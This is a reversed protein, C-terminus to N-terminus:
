SDKFNYGVYVLLEPCSLFLCVRQCTLVKFLRAVAWLGASAEKYKRLRQLTHENLIIGGVSM